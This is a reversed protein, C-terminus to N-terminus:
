KFYNQAAECLVVEIQVQKAKEFVKVVEAKLLIGYLFQFESVKILKLWILLLFQKTHIFCFILKRKRIMRVPLSRLLFMTINRLSNGGCVVTIPVSPAFSCSNYMWTLQIACYKAISFSEVFVTYDIGTYCVCM